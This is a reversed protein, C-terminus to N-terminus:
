EKKGDDKRLSGMKLGESDAQAKEMREKTAVAFFEKLDAGEEKSGNQVAALDAMDELTIDTVVKRSLFQLVMKENVGREKLFALMATRRAPLTQASGGAVERAKAIIPQCLVLPVVSFIANRRAKAVAALATTAIMADSYRGNRGWISVTVEMSEAVNTELDHAVGQAILEREGISIVRGGVRLNGYSIAVIEALRVSPGTVLKGNVPKAYEMSKAVDESYTALGIARLIFSSINRPYTKATTIATDIEARMQSEVANVNMVEVKPIINEEDM